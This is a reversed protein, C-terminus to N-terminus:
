VVGWWYVLLFWAVPACFIPSDVIDLIGGFNPLIDGSDKVQAGRKFLSELLDGMQAFISMLFGFTVAQVPTLLRISVNQTAHPDTFGLPLLVAAENLLLSVAMGMLIAGIAGEVTKKPSVLPSLKTRGFFSGAFYAGIDASKTVVIFYFFAPAAIIGAGYPASRIMVAFSTLMGCYTIVAWTGAIDGLGYEVKGRLVFWSAAGLIGVLFILVMVALPTLSNLPFLPGSLLSLWPALVVAGVVWPSWRQMPRLRVAAMIRSLEVAALAAMVACTIPILSGHRLLFGLPGPWNCFHAILSDGIVLCVVSFLVLSGLLIRQEMTRFRAANAQQSQITPVPGLGDSVFVEPGRARPAWGLRM